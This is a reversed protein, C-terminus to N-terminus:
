EPTENVTFPSREFKAIEADLEAIRNRAAAVDATLQDPPVLAPKGDRTTVVARGDRYHEEVVKIFARNLGRETLLEMPVGRALPFTEPNM